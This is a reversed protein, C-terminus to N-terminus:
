LLGKLAGVIIAACLRPDDRLREDGEEGCLATM